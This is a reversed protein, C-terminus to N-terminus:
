RRCGGWCGGEDVDRTTGISGSAAGCSEHASACLSGGHQAGARAGGAGVAAGVVGAGEAGDVVIVRGQGEAPEGGAERKVEGTGVGAGGAVMADQDVGDTGVRGDAREAWTWGM